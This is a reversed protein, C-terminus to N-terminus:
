ASTPSARSRESTAASRTPTASTAAGRPGHRAEGGGNRDGDARREREGVAGGQDGDRCGIASSESRGFRSWGSEGVVNTDGKRHGAWGFGRRLRPQTSRRLATDSINPCRGTAPASAPVRLFRWGPLSGSGTSRLSRRWCPTGRRPGGRTPSRGTAASRRWKCRTPCSRPRRSCCITGVTSASSKPRHPM